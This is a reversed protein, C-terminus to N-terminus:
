TSGSSSGGSEPLRVAKDPTAEVRAEKLVGETAKGLSQAPHVTDGAKPSNEGTVGASLGNLGEGTVGIIASDCPM